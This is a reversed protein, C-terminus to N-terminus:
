VASRRRVLVATPASSRRETRTIASPSRNSAPVRRPSVSLATRSGVRCCTLRGAGSRPRRVSLDAICTATPGGPRLIFGSLGATFGGGGVWPYAPRWRELDPWRSSARVVAHATRPVTRCGFEFIHIMAIVRSVREHRWLLVPIRGAARGFRRFLVHVLHSTFPAASSSSACSIFALTKCGRTARV